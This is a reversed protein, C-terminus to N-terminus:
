GGGLLMFRPGVYVTVEQYGKDAKYHLIGLLRDWSTIHFGDIIRLMETNGWEWNRAEDPKCDRTEGTEMDIVKLRVEPETEVKNRREAWPKVLRDFIKIDVAQDLAGFSTNERLGDLYGRYHKCLSLYYHRGRYVACEDCLKHGFPCIMNTKAM